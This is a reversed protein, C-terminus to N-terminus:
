GAHPRLEAAAGRLKARLLQAHHPCTHSGLRARQQRCHAVRVVVGRVYRRAHRRRRCVQCAGGDIPQQREHMAVHRQQRGHLHPATHLHPRTPSGPHSGPHSPM